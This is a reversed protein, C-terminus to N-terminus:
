AEGRYVAIFSITDVMGHVLVLPYINRRLILFGLGLVLGIMGTMVFGFLGQYYFHAFGFILAPLLVALVSAGRLRGLGDQIRTVMYGRFFMEEGLAASTWVVALWLLLMPLNGEVDGWRAEVGEPLGEPKVFGIQEGGLVVLAVGGIFLLFIFGAKPLVLLRSKWDPLRVFGMDRWGVGKTRLYLTLVILTFLLSIPGSFKWTIEAFVLRSGFALAAFAVVELIIWWNARESGTTSVAGESM